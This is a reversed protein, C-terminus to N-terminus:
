RKNKLIEHLYGSANFIAGCLADEMEARAADLEAKATKETLARVKRHVTWAAMFHRWLSKMYASYPIGKQWNDGERLTGDAQMRHKHMYQAYRTLVFPSLFAEYDLKERDTDRTAGTLFKRIKNM